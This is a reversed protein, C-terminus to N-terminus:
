LQMRNLEQYADLLKNRVQVTLELALRAEEAALLVSHIDEAEGTVLQRNAEDARVQLENVRNLADKLMTGFDAKENGNVGNHKQIQNLYAQAAPNIKM